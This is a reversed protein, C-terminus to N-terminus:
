VQIVFAQVLSLFDISYIDRPRPYLNNIKFGNSSDSDLDCIRSANALRTMNQHVCEEPTRKLSSPRISIFFVSCCEYYYSSVTKSTANNNKLLQTKVYHKKLINM